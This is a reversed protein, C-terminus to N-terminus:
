RKDCEAKTTRLPVFLTRSALALYSHRLGSRRDFGNRLLSRQALLDRGARQQEVIEAQEAIAAVDARPQRAAVGEQDLREVLAAGAHLGRVQQDAIEVAPRELPRLAHPRRGLDVQM